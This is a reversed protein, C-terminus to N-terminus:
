RRFSKSKKPAFREAHSIVAGPQPAHDAVTKMGTWIVAHGRELTRSVVADMGARTGWIVVRRRPAAKRPANEGYAAIVIQEPDVGSEVLEQRVAKARQLSLQVNKAANGTEDAHGDLVVLGDPNAQAWAAAHGLRNEELDAKLLKASGKEFRLEALQGVRPHQSKANDALAPSSALAMVAVLTAIKM